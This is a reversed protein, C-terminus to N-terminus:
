GALFLEHSATIQFQAAERLREEYQSHMSSVLSHSQLEYKRRYRQEMAYTWLVKVLQRPLLKRFKVFVSNLSEAHNSNEIGRRSFPIWALTWRQKETVMLYAPAAPSYEKPEELAAPYADNSRAKRGNWYDSKVAFGHRTAVAAM